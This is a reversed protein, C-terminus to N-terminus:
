DKESQEGKWLEITELIKETEKSLNFLGREKIMKRFASDLQWMMQEMVINDNVYEEIIDGLTDYDTGYIHAPNDDDKETNIIDIDMKDLWDEYIDIISGKFEALDNTKM